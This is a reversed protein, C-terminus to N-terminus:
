TPLVFAVVAAEAQAIALALLKNNAPQGGPHVRDFPGVRASITITQSSAPPTLGGTIFLTTEDNGRITASVGNITLKMDRFQDIRLKTSTTVINTTTSNAGTTLTAMTPVTIDAGFSGGTLTAAGWSVHTSTKVTTVANAATGVVKAVVSMNAGSAVARVDANVVTAAAYATGSGAGLNIAAILNDRATTASAGIFVHGDVNTLVTQWTYVKGNITVTDADSPQSAVTLLGSAAVLGYQQTIKTLANQVIRYDGFISGPPADALGKGQRLAAIDASMFTAVIEYTDGNVVAAPLTAVTLASDTNSIIKSSVGRLAVTTTNAKFKVMNGIQKSPTYTGADDQVLTASSGTLATLTGPQSLTNQFLELVSSMDQARLFNLPMTQITGEGSGQAGGALATAAVAASLSGAGSGEPLFARVLAFAAASANIAATILTATNAGANPTGNTQDLAITIATGSVSITLGATVTPITVAVTISNGPIGPEQAQVLFLSTSAGLSLQAARYDIGTRLLDRIKKVYMANVTSLAPM